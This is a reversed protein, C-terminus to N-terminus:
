RGSSRGASRPRLARWRRSGRAARPRGRRCGRPGARRRLHRNGSGDAEAIALEGADPEAGVAQRVRGLVDVEELLGPLGPEIEDVRGVQVRAARALPGDPRRKRGEGIVQGDGGLDAIVGAAAPRFRQPGLELLAELPQPLLRDREDVEVPDVRVDRDLLREGDEALVAVCPPDLVDAHRVDTHVLDLARARHDRNRGDLVLVAERLALVVIHDVVALALPDQEDGVVGQVPRPLVRSLSVQSRFREGQM